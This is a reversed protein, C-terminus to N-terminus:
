HVSEVDMVLSVMKKHGLANLRARHDKSVRKACAFPRQIRQMLRVTAMIAVFVEQM